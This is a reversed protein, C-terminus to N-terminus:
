LVVWKTAMISDQSAVDILGLGGEDKPMTCVVFMGLYWHFPGSVVMSLGCTFGSFRSLSDFNLGSLTGVFFMTCM